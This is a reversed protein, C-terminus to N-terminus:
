GGQAISLIEVHEGAVTLAGGLHRAPVVEGDVAVAVGRPEIGLTPSCRSWRRGRRCPCRRRRQRDASRERRPGRPVALSAVARGPGLRGFRRPDCAGVEPPLPEGAVAAAVAEATIPTLLIGNRYHGTAVVLGDVSARGILPLDDPTGPRLGARM